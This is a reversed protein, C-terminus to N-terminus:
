LFYCNRKLRNQDLKLECKMRLTAYLFNCLTRADSTKINLWILLSPSAPRGGLSTILKTVKSSIYYQHINLQSQCMFLNTEQEIMSFWCQTSLTGTMLFLDVQTYDCSMLWRGAAWVWLPFYTFEPRLIIVLSKTIVYRSHVPLKRGQLHVSTHEILGGRGGVLGLSSSKVDHTLQLHVHLRVISNHHTPRSLRILGTRWAEEM